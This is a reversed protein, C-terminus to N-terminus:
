PGIRFRYPKTPQLDNEVLRGNDAGLPLWRRKNLDLLRRIKEKFRHLKLVVVPSLHPDPKQESQHTM